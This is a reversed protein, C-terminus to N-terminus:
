SVKTIKVQSWINDVGIGCDTGLGTGAQTSECRYEFKLTKTAALTFKAVIMSEYHVGATKYAWGTTGYAIVSSDTHNFLRAMSKDTMLLHITAEVVYTGAALDFTKASALNTSDVINDPDQAETNLPYLYWAGGVADGGANGSPLKYQLLAFRDPSLFEDVYKKNAVKYDADPASSPTVPFSTFTKIGGVSEDGTNNVKAALGDDVYTKRSFQNDTTPDAAPGTPIATFAAGAFSWVGTALDMIARPVWSPAEETGTNESIDITTNTSNLYIIFEKNVGSARCRWGPFAAAMQRIVAKTIRGSNDFSLPSETIPTDPTFGFIDCLAIELDAVRNDIDVGLTDNTMRDTMLEKPLAM